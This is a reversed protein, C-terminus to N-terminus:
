VDLKLYEAIEEFLIRAATKPAAKSPLGSAHLFTLGKRKVASKDFGGPESALELLFAGDRFRATIHKNLLPAPVTNIVADYRDFRINEFSSFQRDATLVAEACEKSDFTVVDTAAGVSKFIKAVAKGVRGFGVVLVSMEKFTIETNEATLMLAGDATIAANRYAFREGSFVNVFRISKSRFLEATSEGAVFGFVTSREGVTRLTDDTFSYTPTFVYVAADGSQRDGQEGFRFAEYGAEQFDRLLYEYRKDGNTEVIFSYEM